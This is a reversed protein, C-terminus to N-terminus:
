LNSVRTSIYNHRINCVRTKMFKANSLNSLKEAVLYNGGEVSWLNGHMGALGVSGVFAHIGSPM